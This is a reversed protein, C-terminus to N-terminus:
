KFPTDKTFDSGFVKEGSSGKVVYEVKSISPIEKAITVM